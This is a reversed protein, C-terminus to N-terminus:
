KQFPFTLIFLPDLPSCPNISVFKKEESAPKVANEKLLIKESNPKRGRKKKVPTEASFVSSSKDEDDADGEDNSEEIVSNTVEENKRPRGKRRKGPPM